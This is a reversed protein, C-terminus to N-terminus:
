YVDGFKARAVQMVEIARDSRKQTILTKVYSIYQNINAITLGENM